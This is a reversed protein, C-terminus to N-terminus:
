QEKLLLLLNTAYYHTVESIDFVPMPTPFVKSYRGSNALASATTFGKAAYPSTVLRASFILKDRVRQHGVAPLSHSSRVLTDLLQRSHRQLGRKTRGEQLSSNLFSVVDIFISKVQAVLAVDGLDLQSLAVINDQMVLKLFKLRVQEFQPGTFGCPIARKINVHWDNRADWDLKEFVTDRVHEIWVPFGFHKATIEHVDEDIEHVDEDIFAGINQRGIIDHADCGVSCGKLKNAGNSDLVNSTYSGAILLDDERHWSARVISATKFAPDNHYATM